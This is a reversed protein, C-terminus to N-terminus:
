GSHQSRESRRKIVNIIHWPLTVPWLICTVILALWLIVTATFRSYGNRIFLQLFNEFSGITGLFACLVFYILTGWIWILLM